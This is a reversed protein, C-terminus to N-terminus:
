FLNVECNILPMELKRWINNLYKLPVAIEVEKRGVKNADYVSNDIENGEANTIRENVNYTSGTISTKYEFSKSNTIPDANHIDDPHNNPEDRFYNCLSGTTKNYNESYEILNYM